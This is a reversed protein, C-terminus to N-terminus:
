VIPKRINWYTIANKSLRSSPGKASCRMCEVHWRFDSDGCTWITRDDGGCFPCPLAKVQEPEPTAKIFSMVNATLTRSAQTM